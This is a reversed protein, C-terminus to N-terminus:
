LLHRVELTDRVRSVLVSGPEGLHELRTEFRDTFTSRGSMVGLEVPSAPPIAEVVNAPLQRGHPIVHQPQMCGGFVSSGIVSPALRIRLAIARYRAEM